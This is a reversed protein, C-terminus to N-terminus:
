QRPFTGEDSSFFPVVENISNLIMSFKGRDQRVLRFVIDGLKARSESNLVVKPVPQEFQERTLPFLHRWYLQYALNRLVNAQDDQPYGRQLM